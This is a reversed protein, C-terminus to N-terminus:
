IFGHNCFVSVCRKQMKVLNIMLIPILHMTFTENVLEIGDCLQHLLKGIFSLYYGPDYNAEKLRRLRDNIAEFRSQLAFSVLVFQCSYFCRFINSYTCCFMVSYKFEQANGLILLEIQMFFTLEIM